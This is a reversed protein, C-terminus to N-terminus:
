VAEEIIIDRDNPYAAAALLSAVAQARPRFMDSAQSRECVWLLQMGGDALGRVDAYAQDSVRRVHYTKGNPM